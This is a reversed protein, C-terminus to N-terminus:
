GSILTSKNSRAPLKIESSLFSSHYHLKDTTSTSLYQSELTKVSVSRTFLQDIPRHITSRGVLSGGGMRPLTERGCTTIIISGGTVNREFGWNRTPFESNIGLLLLWNGDLFKHFIGSWRWFCHHYPLMCKKRHIRNDDFSPFQLIRNSTPFYNTHNAPIHLFFARSLLSFSEANLLLSETASQSPIKYPFTWEHHREDSNDPTLSTKDDAHTNLPM